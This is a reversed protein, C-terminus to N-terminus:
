QAKFAEAPLDPCAQPTCLVMETEVGREFWCCGCLRRGDPADFAQPHDCERPCHKHGDRAVLPRRQM